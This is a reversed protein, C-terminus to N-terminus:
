FCCTIACLITLYLLGINDQKFLKFLLKDLSVQEVEVYCNVDAPAPPASTFQQMDQPSIQGDSALEM